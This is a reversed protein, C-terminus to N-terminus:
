LIPKSTRRNLLTYYGYRWEFCMSMTGHYRGHRGGEEREWTINIRAPMMLLLGCDGSYTYM